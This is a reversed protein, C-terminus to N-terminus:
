LEIYTKPTEPLRRLAEYLVARRRAAVSSIGGPIVSSIKSRAGRGSNL